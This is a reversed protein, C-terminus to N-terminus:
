SWSGASLHEHAVLWGDPGRAFVRTGRGSGSVPEGRAVGSWAFSYIIAAATDSKAIWASELTAYQYNEVVAWNSTMISAFAAKGRIAPGNTYFFVVDDTLLALAADIDRGILAAAFDSM